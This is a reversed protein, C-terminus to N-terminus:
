AVYILSESHLKGWTKLWIFLHLLCPSLFKLGFLHFKALTDYCKIPHFIFGYAYM